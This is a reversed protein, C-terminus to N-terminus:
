PDEQVADGDKGPHEHGAEDGASGARVCTATKFCRTLAHSRAVIEGDHRRPLVVRRVPYKRLRCVTPTARTPLRTSAASPRAIHSASSLPENRQWPFAFASAPLERLEAADLRHSLQEDDPPQWTPTPHGSKGTM